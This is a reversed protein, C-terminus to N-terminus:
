EGYIVPVFAPRGHQEFDPLPQGQLPRRHVENHCVMKEPVVCRMRLDQAASNHWSMADSMTKQRCVIPKLLREQGDDRRGLQFERERLALPLCRRIPDVPQLVRRKVARAIDDLLACALLDSAESSVLGTLSGSSSM